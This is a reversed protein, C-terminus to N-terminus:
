VHQALRGTRPHLPPLLESLNEAMIGALGAVKCWFCQGKRFDGSRGLVNLAPGAEDLPPFGSVHYATGRGVGVWGHAHLRHDM